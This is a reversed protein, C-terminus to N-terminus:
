SSQHQGPENAGASTPQPQPRRLIALLEQTDQFTARVGTSIEDVVGRLQDEDPSLGQGSRYVRVVFTDM